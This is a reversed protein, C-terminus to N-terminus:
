RANSFDNEMMKRVMDDFTTKPKWGLTSSIKSADGCLVDVESPRYFAPDVTVVPRGTKKDFYFEDTGAAGNSEVEMGAYAFATELFDRVTRTTGTAVVWDGPRDHEVILRMAEVYDGAYGWDRKANLNGLSLRDQKGFKIRAVAMTIKRTVFDHGRYESEHNFLIGNSAHMGRSERHNVVSWFGHLKAVGYPSRPHMISEESQPPPTRGFLESTSAQYFRACPAFLRTAELVNLVGIGNVHSTYAPINFSDGVHSQAALNYVQDPKSESVANVISQYDTVDGCVVRVRGGTRSKMLDVSHSSSSRRVLGYVEYGNDTLHNALFGGDQGTIGTILARM